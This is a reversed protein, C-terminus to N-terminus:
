VPDAVPVDPLPATALEHKTSRTEKTASARTAM